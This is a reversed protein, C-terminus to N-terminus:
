YSSTQRNYENFREKGSLIARSRLLRYLNLNDKTPDAQYRDWAEHMRRVPIKDGFETAFVQQCFWRADNGNHGRTTNCGVGRDCCKYKHKSSGWLFSFLGDKPNREREAAQFGDRAIKAREKEETRVRLRTQWLPENDDMSDARKRRYV